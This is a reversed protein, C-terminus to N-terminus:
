GSQHVRASAEVTKLGEPKRGLLSAGPIDDETLLIANSSNNHLGSSSSAMSYYVSAVSKSGSGSLIQLRLFSRDLVVVLIVFSSPTETYNGTSPQLVANSFIGM